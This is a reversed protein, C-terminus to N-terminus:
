GFYRKELINIIEKLLCNLHYVKGVDTVKKQIEQSNLRDLDVKLSASSCLFFLAVAAIKTSM